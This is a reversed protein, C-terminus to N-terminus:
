FNITSFAAVPATDRQIESSSPLSQCSKKPLFTFRVVPVMYFPSILVIKTQDWAGHRQSSWWERLRSPSATSIDLPISNVFVIFFKIILNGLIRPALTAGGCFIEFPITPWFSSIRGNQTPTDPYGPLGPGELLKWHNAKNQSARRASTGYSRARRWPRCPAFINHVRSCGATPFLPFPCLVPREFARRTPFKAQKSAYM